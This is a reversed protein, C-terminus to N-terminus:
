SCRRAASPASAQPNIGRRPLAGANHLGLKCVCKLHSRSKSNSEINDEVDNNNDNNNDDDDDGDDDDNNDHATNSPLTPM